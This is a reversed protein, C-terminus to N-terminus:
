ISLVDHCSSCFADFVCSLWLEFGALVVAALEAAPGARKQALEPDATEAEARKRELALNWAYDFGAPLGDAEGVQIISSNAYV